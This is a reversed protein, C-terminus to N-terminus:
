RLAAEIDTPVAPPIAGPERSVAAARPGSENGSHSDKRQFYIAFRTGNEHTLRYSGGLQKEVLMSVLRLGLANQRGQGPTFGIGDDGVEFLIEDADAGTRMAIEIRGRAVPFAYKLANSILENIIMGCAVATDVDLAIREVQIDLVIRERDVGYSDFLNGAMGQIFDFMHISALDGSQYLREHVLAMAKIRNQSERLFDASAPALHQQLSLLSSIVQLNNKVGHHIHRLLVDKEELSARLREEAERRRTIEHAAISLGSASPYAHVEFYGNLRPYFEEFQVPRGTRMARNCEDYFRSDQVLAPYLDWLRQGIMDESQKGDRNFFREAERNLFTLRGDPDLALFADTISELINAIRTKSEELGIRQTFNQFKYAHIIHHTLISVFGFLVLSVGANIQHEGSSGGFWLSSAVFFVNCIVVTFIFKIRSITFFTALAFEVQLIGVFYTLGRPGAWAGILGVALAITLVGVVLLSEYAAQFWRPAALALVFMTGWIAIGALRLLIGAFQRSAPLNGLDALLGLGLALIVFGCVVRANKTASRGLEDKFRNMNMLTKAPDGGMSETVDSDRSVRSEECDNVRIKALHESWVISLFNRIM